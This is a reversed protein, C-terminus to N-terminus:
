KLLVRDSKSVMGSDSVVKVVMVGSTMSLEHFSKIEDKRIQSKGVFRGSIDYVSVTANEDTRNEVVIVNDRVYTNIISADDGNRVEAMSSSTIKFRNQNTSRSGPIVIEAGNKLLYGRGTFTDHLYLRRVEVDSAVSMNIVYSENNRASVGLTTGDMQPVTAVQYKSQDSGSVFTQILGEELMKYGDWGNDFGRTASSEEFLWVRDASGEGIVDLVIYPLEKKGTTSRWAPQNVGNTENKVLQDYKLTINANSGANVMFSHMSLIRDPLGAQGGLKVPVATYQGAAVGAISGGNLKRWQDRTGANFLYVQKDWGSANYQIADESIPIAASYSNAILNMGSYNVGGTKSLSITADGVNLKGTFEYINNPKTASSNTMEYGRFAHLKTNEAVNVWKNGNVNEMWENITEMKPTLYPFGSESVPIGFYQWSKRFYGCDACEYAKNYFEVTAQVNTNSSPNAFILTGNAKENDPDAKVVITGEAPGDQVTGNITLMNGTTIVLNKKSANILNGIIRDQDLHLDEKAPGSNTVGTVTPNNTETAFEVDEGDGPIRNATWNGAKAWDNDGLTGHWYNKKSKIIIPYTLVNSRGCPDTAIITITGTKSLTGAPLSEATYETSSTNISSFTGNLSTQSWQYTIVADGYGKALVEFNIKEGESLEIKDLAHSTHTFEPLKRSSGDFLFNLFIRKAAVDAATTNKYQHGAEYLVVGNNPNDYAYGYIVLDTRVGKNDVDWVAIKAGGRWKHNATPRYGPGSGNNLVWDIKGIFQMPADIPYDYHWANNSPATTGPTLSATTGILGGDIKETLFNTRQTTNSPNYMNEIGVKDNPAHCGSWLWGGNGEPNDVADYARVWNYLKGHTSWEPDAHPLVFLDHCPTLASPLATRTAALSIGAEMLYGDAIAGNKTDFTWQTFFRLERYFPVTVDSQTVYRTVVTPGFYETKSNKVTGDKNYETVLYAGKTGNLLKQVEPLEAYKKEIIFPGGRFTRGDVTFDTGDKGKTHSISWIVPIKETKVLAYVLGYPKLGNNNTQPTVGMDIIVSGAPINRTTNPATFQALVKQPLVLMGMVVAVM